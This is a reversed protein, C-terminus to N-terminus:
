FICLNKIRSLIPLRTSSSSPNENELTFEDKKRESGPQARGEEMSPEEGDSAAAPNAPVAEQKRKRLQSTVICTLVVGFLVWGSVAATFVLHQKQRARHAADEAGKEDGLGRRDGQPKLLPELGQSAASAETVQPVYTRNGLFEFRADLQPAASGSDDAPLATILSVLLAGLVYKRPSCSVGAALAPEEAAEQLLPSVQVKSEQKAKEEVCAGGGRGGGEVRGFVVRM